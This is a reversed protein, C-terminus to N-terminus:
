SCGRLKALQFDPLRVADRLCQSPALHALICKYDWCEPPPLLPDPNLTTKPWVTFKLGAVHNLSCSTIGCIPLSNCLSSKLEVYLNVYIMTAVLHATQTSPVGPFLDPATQGMLPCSKAMKM